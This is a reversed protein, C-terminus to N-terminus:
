KVQSVTTLWLFTKATTYGESMFPVVDIILCVKPIILEKLYFLNSVSSLDCKDWKWVSELCLNSSIAEM